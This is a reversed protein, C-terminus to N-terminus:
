TAILRDLIEVEKSLTQDGIETMEGQLYGRFGVFVLRYEDSVHPPISQREWKSLQPVVIGSENTVAPEVEQKTFYGEREDNIWNKM